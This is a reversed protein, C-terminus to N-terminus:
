AVMLFNMAKMKEHYEQFYVIPYNLTMKISKVTGHEVVLEKLMAKTFKKKLGSVFRV